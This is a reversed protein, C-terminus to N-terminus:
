FPYGIALNLRGGTDLGTPTGYGARLPLAYDLRVVLFQADVRLGAGYGVALQQLFTNARFEGGPRTPDPNYLWINGADVFLAGKLYPILDQRYELNGELRIDGVQDYFSTRSDDPARYAGPGLGRAAYARVSNPGGVGYQRLYPLVTSNGYPAGLGILLRGVIRNGRAPDASVRFYERLELDLKAYQSFEQGFIEKTGTEPNTSRSAVSALNGSVELGGSFFIQQRRQELVQQNYTYRYSTGLIFQQRFANRLFPRRDLLSDFPTTTKSLRNYTIDIPRFEQENTIRTKWSYGYNGNFADIRFAELREVYRYGVGFTTRPQFDSNPLRIDFPPTILRPVLLRTDLGVETSTLGIAGTNQRTQNEFTATLNVLLQEAGRLASRNRFEARLGPGTFGNSKSLLQIEARLSKKKLQTMLVVADLRPLGVRTTDGAAIDAAREAPPEFAARGAFVAPAGLSDSSTAPRFRVEVFKFTGLSMLRSLTQDRRHRSYLSDTRPYLFVAGTVAKAKFVKEDPFYRYNEFLIPRRSTTDTLVYNTNLDVNRLVYPVRARPPTSGKITVFVDVEGRLTSDVDFQIADAAFYYFGKQKLVADIRTREATLTNLNYEDGVKLLTQGQAARIAANLLSDSAPWTISKITYARTAAAAYNVRATKAKEEITHTVATGQFFGHNLLRNQILGKTADIKVQSLLVPAEGFRDALTKGIGKKKGEGLHWFYLKPRMGLFSQNPKPRVVSELETQLAAENQPAKTTTLKVTSGTYLKEGDPIFKLGSCASLLAALLTIGYSLAARAPALTEPGRPRLSAAALEARKVAPNSAESTAPRRGASRQQRMRM